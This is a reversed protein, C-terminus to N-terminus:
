RTTNADDNKEASILDRLVSYHRTWTPYLINFIKNQDYVGSDIMSRITKRMTSDGRGLSLKQM